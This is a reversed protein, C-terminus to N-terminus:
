DKFIAGNDDHGIMMKEIFRAHMPERDSAKYFVEDIKYNSTVIFREPRIMHGGGKVEAM